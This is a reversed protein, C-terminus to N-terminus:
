GYTTAALAPLERVERWSAFIGTAGVVAVAVMAVRSWRPLVTVLVDASASRLVVATLMVLGGVWTSVAALHAADAPLAVAVLEGAAAHGAASTALLVGGLLVIFGVREIMQPASARRLWWAVAGAVAVLLVLRALSAAGFRSGAVEAMLAPRFSDTLPLGAAYPGQVSFGITTGVTALWWGAWVVGRAGRVRRGDPRLGLLFALGGALLVIGSFVSFRSVTLVQWAADGATASAPSVSESPHGVSFTSAGSVAHSDLSVVRWSILYTGHALEGRLPVVVERGGARSSMTADDVRRGEPDLIKIAGLSVGVPESYRLVVESPSEDLVVGNGPTTGVL